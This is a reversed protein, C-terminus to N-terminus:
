AGWAVRKSDAVSRWATGHIRAQREAEQHAWAIAEARVKRGDNGFFSLEALTRTPLEVVARYGRRNFCASCRAVRTKIITSPKFM